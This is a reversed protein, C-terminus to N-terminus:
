QAVEEYRIRGFRGRRGDSLVGQRRAVSSQDRNAKIQEIIREQSWDLGPHRRKWQAIAGHALGAALSAARDSGRPPEQIAVKGGRAAGIAKDGPMLRM